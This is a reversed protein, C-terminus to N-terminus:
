VDMLNCARALLMYSAVDPAWNASYVVIINSLNCTSQSLHEIGEKDTTM